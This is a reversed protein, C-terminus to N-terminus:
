DHRRGDRAIREDMAHRVVGDRGRNREIEQATETAQKRAYRGHEIQVCASGAEQRASRMCPRDSGQFGAVAALEGSGKCGLETHPIAPRRSRWREDQYKAPMFSWRGTQDGVPLSSGRRGALRATDPLPPVEGREMHWSWRRSGKLNPCSNPSRELRVVGGLGHRGCESVSAACAHSVKHPVAHPANGTSSWSRWQRSPRLNRQRGRNAKASPCIGGVSQDGLGTRHEGAVRRLEPGRQRLAGARAVGPRQPEGGSVSRHLRRGVTKKRTEDSPHDRLRFCRLFM